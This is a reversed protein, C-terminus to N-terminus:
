LVASLFEHTEFTALPLPRVTPCLLIVCSETQWNVLFIQTTAAIMMVAVEDCIKSNYFPSDACTDPARLPRSTGSFFDLYIIEVYSYFYRLTFITFCLFFLRLHVCKLRSTSVRGCILIIAAQGDNIVETASRVVSLNDLQSKHRWSPRDEAVSWCELTGQNQFLVFRGGPLLEPRGEHYLFGPGSGMKAHILYQYAIDPPGPHSLSWTQPGCAIRKVFDILEITTLAQLRQGFPQDLFSRNRIDQVPALWVEREFSLRRIRKCTQGHNCPYNAAITGALKIRVLSAALV